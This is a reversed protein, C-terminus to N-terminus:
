RLIASEFDYGIKEGFKRVADVRAQFGAEYGETYSTQVIPNTGLDTRAVRGGSGDKFGMRFAGMANGQDVSNQNDLGM